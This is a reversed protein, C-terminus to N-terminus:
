KIEFRRPVGMGALVVEFSMKNTIAVQDNMRPRAVLTYRGDSDQGGMWTVLSM